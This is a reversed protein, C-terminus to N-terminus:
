ILIPVFVKVPSGTLNNLESESWLMPLEVALQGRGQQMIQVWGM